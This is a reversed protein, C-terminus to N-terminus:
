AAKSSSTGGLNPIPSGSTVDAPKTAPISGDFPVGEADQTVTFLDILAWVWAGLMLLLGVGLFSTAVGAVSVGLQIFGKRTYGALFNHVGFGGLFFALVMYTVRNCKPPMSAADAHMPATPPTSM